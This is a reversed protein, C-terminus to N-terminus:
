DNKLKPRSSRGFYRRIAENYEKRDMEAIDQSTRALEKGQEVVLDEVVKKTDSLTPKLEQLFAASAVIGRAQELVKELAVADCEETGNEEALVVSTGGILLGLLFVGVFIFNKLKM